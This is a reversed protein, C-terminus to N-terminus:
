LNYTPLKEDKKEFIEKLLVMLTNFCSLDLYARCKSRSGFSNAFYILLPRSYAFLKLCIYYEVCVDLYFNDSYYFYVFILM